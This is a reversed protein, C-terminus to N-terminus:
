VAFCCAGHEAHLRMHACTFTPLSCRGLLAARAAMSLQRSRAHHPLRHVLHATGRGLAVCAAQIGRASVWQLGLRAALTLEEIGSALGRGDHDPELRFEGALAIGLPGRAAVAISSESAFTPDGGAQLARDLQLEAALDLRLWEAGASPAALLSALLAFGALWRGIM